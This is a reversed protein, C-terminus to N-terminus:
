ISNFRRRTNVGVGVLGLLLALLALDYVNAGTKALSQAKSKVPASPKAVPASKAYVLAYQSFHKVTFTVKDGSQKFAVNKVKGDAAVYLVERLAGKAPDTPLTVERATNVAVVKGSKQEIFKLDFLDYVKDALYTSNSDALRKVVFLLGSCNADEPCRFKVNANLKSDTAPLVILVDDPSSNFEKVAAKLDALAKTLKVLGADATNANQADKIADQLKAYAGAYKKGQSIAKAVALEKDIDAKAKDLQEKITTLVLKAQPASNMGDNNVRINYVPKIDDGLAVLVKKDFWALKGNSGLGDYQSLDHVKIQEKDLEDKFVILDLLHAQFDANVIMPKLPIELYRKSGASILRAKQDFVGNAMSDAAINDYRKVGYDVDEVPYKYELADLLASLQDVNEQNVESKLTAVKEQILKYQSDKVLEKLFSESAVAILKAAKKDLYAQNVKSNNEFDAVATDLKVICELIKDLKKSFYKSDLKSQAYEIAKEVELKYVTSPADKILEKAKAIKEKLEAQKEPLINSNDGDALVYTAKTDYINIKYGKVPWYSKASPLLSLKGDSYRYVQTSKNAKFAAIIFSLEDKARGNGEFPKYDAGDATLMALDFFKANKLNLNTYEESKSIKQVKDSDAKLEDLKFKADHPFRFHKSMFTGAYENGLTFKGNIQDTYLKSFPIKYTTTATAKGDAAFGKVKVTVEGGADPFSDFLKEDKPSFAIKYGADPNYPSANVAYVEALNSDATPESGDLTYRIERIATEALSPRAFVLEFERGQGASTVLRFKEEDKSVYSGFKVNKHEFDYEQQPDDLDKYYHDTPVSARLLKPFALDKAAATDVTTDSWTLTGYTAFEFPSYPSPKWPAYLYVKDKGDIPISVESIEYAKKYKGADEGKVLTKAALKTLQLDANQKLDSITVGATKEIGKAGSYVTYLGSEYCTNGEDTCSTDLSYYKVVLYKKGAIEVLKGIPDVHQRVKPDAAGPDEVNIKVYKVSTPKAPADLSIVKLTSFDFVPRVSQTGGGAMISEMVPVFVQGKTTLKNSTDIATKDLPYKLTKPYVTRDPFKKKYIDIFDDKDAETYWEQIDAQQPKGAKDFYWFNGLYGKFAGITLPKFTLVASYKGDKVVIKVPNTDRDIAKNSMSEADSDAKIMKLDISYVGDALNKADLTDAHAMNPVLLASIVLIFGLLWVSLKQLTNFAAKAM